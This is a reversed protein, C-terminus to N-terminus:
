NPKGELKAKVAAFDAHTYHDSMRESSHGYVLRKEASTLIGDAATIAGHRACHWDFDAMKLAVALPKVHRRLANAANLPKGNKATWIPNELAKWGTMALQQRLIDVADSSLPVLRLAAKGKGPTVEQLNWTGRVRAAGRELDVDRWRMALAEGRRVGTMALFLAFRALQPHKAEILKAALQRVQDLTYATREKTVVAPVKVHQTPDAVEIDMAAAHSYVSRLAKVIESVTKTSFGKGKETVMSQVMQRRIEHLQLKGFAPIIHVKLISEISNRWARGYSSVVDPIFRLNIFSELDMLGQPTRNLQNARSVHQEYGLLLARKETLKKGSDEIKRETDRWGWSGDKFTWESFKISWSGSRFRVSGTQNGKRRVDAETLSMLAQASNYMLSAETPQLAPAAARSPTPHNMRRIVQGAV